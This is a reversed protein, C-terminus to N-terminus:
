AEYKAKKLSIISIVSGLAAIYTAKMIQLRPGNQSEEYNAHQRHDLIQHSFSGKLFQLGLTLRIIYSVSFTNCNCRKNTDNKSYNGSSARYDGEPIATLGKKGNVPGAFLHM